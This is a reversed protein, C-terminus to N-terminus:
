IEFERSQRSILDAQEKLLKDGIEVGSSIEAYSIKEGLEDRKKLAYRDGRDAAVYFWAYAQVKNVERGLGEEHFLGLSIAAHNDGQAAAAAYWQFAEVYDVSVGRGDEYMAALNYQGDVDGQEAARRYWQAAERADEKVHIGRDHYYGVNSQAAPDGREALEKFIAYAGSYDKDKHARLATELDDASLMLPVALLSLFVTRTLANLVGISERM